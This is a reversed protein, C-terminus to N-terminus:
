KTAPTLTATVRGCETMKKGYYPNKIMESESLWYAKKMPCYQEYITATNMKLGKLVEYLNKSLSAFHERQHELVTVESIHRSDFKLKDLYGNLLKQQDPKLTKGPDSSLTNFLEKANRAAAMADDAALSNKVALYATTIKNITNAPASKQASTVAISFALVLFLCIRKSM